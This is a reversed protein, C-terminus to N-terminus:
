MNDPLPLYLTFTSIHWYQLVDQFNKSCLFSTKCFHLKGIHLLVWVNYLNLPRPMLLGVMKLLHLTISCHFGLWLAPTHQKISATKKYWMQWSIVNKWFFINIYIFNQHLQIHNNLSRFHGGLPTVSTVLSGLCHQVLIGSLISWSDSFWNEFNRLWFIACFNETKM